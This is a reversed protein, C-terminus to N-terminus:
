LNQNFFELIQRYLSTQTPNTALYGLFEGYQNFQMVGSVSGEGVVYIVGRPGSSVKTPIFPSNLGFIPELPRDIERILTLTEDYIYIKKASRDAVYIQNNEDVHIGTPELLNSVLVEFNGDMHIRVIRKNGTDAVYLLDDKIYMDQPNNLIDNFVLLGAPEYATQTLVLNGEPGVTYTDYPASSITTAYTKEPIVTLLILVLSSIIIMIKKM